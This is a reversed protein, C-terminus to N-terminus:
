ATPASQAAALGRGQLYCYACWAAREASCEPIYLLLERDSALGYGGEAFRALRFHQGASSMSDNFSEIGSLGRLGGAAGFVSRRVKGQEALTEIRERLAAFRKEAAHDFLPEDQDFTTFDVSEWDDSSLREEAFRFFRQEEIRIHQRYHETFELIVERLTSQGAQPQGRPRHMADAFAQALEHLRRHDAIVDRLGACSEPDRMSLLEYVLDEKPHHCRDPYDLFYESALRLLEEDTRKGTDALAVQEEILGLVKSLKGHELRLLFLTDQM